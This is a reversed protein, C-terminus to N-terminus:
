RYLLRSVRFPRDAAQLLKARLRPNYTPRNALFTRVLKATEPTQYSALTSGVWREPFFIDGTKQIEELLDLSKPLYKASTGTRLPHHLYGLADVVWAERERNAENALSAFFQDREAVNGSLAPMMFQLRKKRDPNKIRALQKTLIGDAPYDRVALALALSTYDDETLTVGTPAKQENWITYLRDKAESSLAINQYLRFLLKKKGPATETEMARWAVQEVQTALALRNEPKTFNWVIDALQSALLRLNLEETEKGLLNQYIAGLKTPSIIQGSIMNEYLNIYAAARTVPNKLSGLQSIMATDVPFIGYGQGSSNFIVYSPVSKGAVETLTVNAQNMQVTLEEVHDPYVLAIEFGQPWLRKSGDEGLQSIVLRSIKGAQKDLQYNFKPRGTENVWVHNWAALDAPTRADLIAILEAWTANSFAYKKLYERLGDRLATKGMLRELQRMMIPAKHYIIGGYLSGAEQLNALPQGIPNAGETRDVAYAAPFHDVVFQLDYNADASSVETIKDAMFNAFVEKLWVDNFWRMTVMDGFWMHATEHSIVSARALRQDRTAGNDLFLASARYDIAGVHEMGGYQFDPIAAFDFKQFPYPIQTYDELFRLADAHLQFLSEMSLRIKTTDTERHLLTMPRGDLTRTVPTFKGAVFSFLYTPIINSTQFNVTKRDGTIFSDQVAANTMAQWLSPITLSLQFTAKLDPQDFCPFVTRARDPVLLTYLYDDNRNLSLNGATFQISITNKGPKLFATSILLHESEFVTSIDKGNVSVKQIHTREEKFDLQLLTGTKAWNFTITEHAPILQNKQAPIDFKLAYALQSIQQRRAKALTQSVGTEVAPPKTPTSQSNGSMTISLAVLLSSGYRTIKSLNWIM